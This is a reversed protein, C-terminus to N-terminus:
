SLVTPYFTSSIIFGSLFVNLVWVFYYFVSSVSKVSVGCIKDTFIRKIRIMQTGFVFSNYVLLIFCLGVTNFPIVVLKSGSIVM